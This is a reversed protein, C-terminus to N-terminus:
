YSEGRSLAIGNAGLALRGLGIRDVEPKHGISAETKDKAVNDGNTQGAIISKGAVTEYAYGTLQAEWTRGAPPGGHFKVTMRAWGYHYEGDIKFKLGLYRDKVNSWGELSWTYYGGRGKLLDEQAMPVRSGLWGRRPNPGIASGLALAVAYSDGSICWTSPCNVLNAAAAQVSLVQLTGFNGDQNPHEAFMYDALGDNNIDLRYTQGRGIVKNTRTYVIEAESAPALALFSVGAAGAAVAYAALRRQVAGDLIVPARSVKSSNKM